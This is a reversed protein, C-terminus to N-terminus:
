HGMYLHASYTTICTYLIICSYLVCDAICTPFKCIFTCVPALEVWVAQLGCSWGACSLNQAEGLRGLVQKKEGRSHSPFLPCRPRGLRWSTIEVEWVITLSMEAEGLGVREEEPRQSFCVRHEAPKVFARPSSPSGGGGWGPLPRVVCPSIAAWKRSAPPCLAPATRARVLSSPPATCLHSPM